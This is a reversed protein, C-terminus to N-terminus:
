GSDKLCSTKRQQFSGSSLPTYRPSPATTQHKAKSSNLPLNKQQAIEVMSSSSPILIGKPLNSSTSDNQCSQLHWSWKFLIASNQLNSPKLQASSNRAIVTHNQAQFNTDSQIIFLQPAIVFNSNYKVSIQNFSKAQYFIWAINQNVDLCFCVKGIRVKLRLIRAWGHFSDLCRLSLQRTATPKKQPYISSTVIMLHPGESDPSRLHKGALRWVFGRSGDGMMMMRMWACGMFDGTPVVLDIGFHSLLALSVGFYGRRGYTKHVISPLNGLM